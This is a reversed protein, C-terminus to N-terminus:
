DLDLYTGPVIWISDSSRMPRWYEIGDYWITCYCDNVAYLVVLM